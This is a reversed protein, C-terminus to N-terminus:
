PVPLVDKRPFGVGEPERMEQKSRNFEDATCVIVRQGLDSIVMRKLRQGGYEIVTVQQGRVLEMKMPLINVM